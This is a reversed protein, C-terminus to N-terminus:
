HGLVFAATSTFSPLALLSFSLKSYVLSASTSQCFSAAMFVVRRLSQLLVFASETPRHLNYLSVIYNGIFCVVVPALSGPLVRLAAQYQWGRKM